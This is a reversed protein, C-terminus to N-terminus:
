VLWSMILGEFQHTQYKNQSLNTNELVMIIIEDFQTMTQSKPTM